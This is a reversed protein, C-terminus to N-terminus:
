FATVTALAVKQGRLYAPDTLMSKGFQAADSHGRKEAVYDTPYSMCVIKANRGGYSSIFSLTACSNRRCLKPHYCFDMQFVFTLYLMLFLPWLVVCHKTRKLGSIKLPKFMSFDTAPNHGM